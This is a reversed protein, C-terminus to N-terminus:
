PTEELIPWVINQPDTQTQPIDALAQIYVDLNAIDDVQPLNLRAHRAYREYRWTVASIKTDREARVSSWLADMEAQIEEATKDRVVWETGNWELVEIGSVFPPNSVEVYGADTIEEVTFTSPDTRTRGDSLRIRFPIAAPYSGNKSYLM